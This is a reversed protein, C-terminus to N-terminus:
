HRIPPIRVISSGACCCPLGCPAPTDNEQAPPEAAACRKSPTAPSWTRALFLPAPLREGSQGSWVISPHPPPSRVAALQPSNGYGTGRVWMVFKGGPGGCQVVKPRELDLGNGHSCSPPPYAWGAASGAGTNNSSCNFVNVVVSEFTWSYLDTSSYLAIGGDMQTGTANITRRSGYWWYKGGHELLGAGHADIVEGRTDRWPEGSRISGRGQGQQWGPALALAALAALAAAAM